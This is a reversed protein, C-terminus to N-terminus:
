PGPRAPRSVPNLTDPDDGGANPPRAEGPGGPRPERENPSRGASAEFLGGVRTRRGAASQREGLVRISRETLNSVRRRALSTAAVAADLRGRDAEGRARWAEAMRIRELLPPHTDFWLKAWTPPSPDAVAERAFTAFLRRAADPDGTTQLAVWDAEAEMRRSVLNSFPQAALNLAVFVFLAVPVARPERLSGYRRTALAILFAGPVAYLAYWAAGKWIHERSHHAIEHALVLLVEDDGFRTDLLTDWLFITRSDGLGAAFANPSDTYESVDQVRVPIPETGQDRAYQRASSRLRSDAVPEDDPILWPLTFAFLLTLACFVPAGVIWWRDRLAQAIGMVILLALCIFTFEGALGLWDGILWEVYGVDAADHRRAWWTEVLGFPVQTLWLIGLGLMGLLM